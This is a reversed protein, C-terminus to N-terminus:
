QRQSKVPTSFKFYAATTLVAKKIENRHSCGQITELKLIISLLLSAEQKVHYM